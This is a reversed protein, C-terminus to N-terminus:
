HPVFANEPKQGVFQRVILYLMLGIPGFILVLFLIPIQVLRHIGRRDANRAVWIGVFLDFALYHIWGITTGGKSEFLAMVGALTTFDPTGGAAGPLAGADIMGTMLPIILMTYTLALLGTGLIFLWSLVKNRAPAFALVLWCLLAWNNAAGFILEWDVRM